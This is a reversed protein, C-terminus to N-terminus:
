NSITHQKSIAQALYNKKTFGVFKYFLNANLPQTHKIIKTSRAHTLSKKVFLPAELIAGIAATIGKAANIKFRQCPMQASLPVPKYKIGLDRQKLFFHAFNGLNILLIITIVECYFIHVIKTLGYV